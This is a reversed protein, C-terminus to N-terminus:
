NFLFVRGLHAVHMSLLARLGHPLPCARLHDIGDLRCPHGYLFIIVHHHHHLTIGRQTLLDHALLRTCAARRSDLYPARPPRSERDMRRARTVPLPSCISVVRHVRAPRHSSRAGWMGNQHCRWACPSCKAHHAARQHMFRKMTQSRRRPTHTQQPGGRLARTRSRIRHVRSDLHRRTRHWAMDGRAVRPM